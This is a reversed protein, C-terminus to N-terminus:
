PRAARATNLRVTAEAPDFTAIHAAPFSSGDAAALILWTSGAELNIVEGNHDTLSWVPAQQSRSWTGDVVRGRTFVQVPGSGFSRAEPSAPDAPSVGYVVSLVVVNAPAIEVEDDGRLATHLTGDQVRVWGGVAPDWLHAVQRGFSAQYAVEVGGIESGTGEPLEGYSLVAGPVGSGNYDIMEMDVWLNYPASRSDLRSYPDMRRLAGADVFVGKNAAERLEAITPTNAGSFVFAPTGLGALLEIDTTRASRVPGVQPPVQSQFVAAFRTKLGEILEEYVFDAEALGEQPRSQDNNNGIKVVFAPAAAATESQAPLGTLPAVPGEIVITATTTSTASTSTTTLVADALTTTPVAVTQSDVTSEVELPVVEVGNENEVCAGAFLAFLVAPASLGLRPHM